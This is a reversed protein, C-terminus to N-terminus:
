DLQFNITSIDSEFQTITKVYTTDFGNGAYYFRLGNGILDGKITFSFGGNVNIYDSAIIPEYSIEKVFFYLGEINNQNEINEFHVKGSLYLDVTPPSLFSSMSLLYVVIAKM